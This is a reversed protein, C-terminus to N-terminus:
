GLDQPKALPFSNDGKGSLSASKRLEEIAQSVEGRGFISSTAALRTAGAAVVLPATKPSIGGDVEIPIKSNIKRIAAIKKLASRQFPQGSRGTHITMVLVQDISELYPLIEKVPTPLDIALGIEANLSQCELIFDYVNEKGEGEKSFGELHAIFRDFGAAFFPEVYRVPDKVMLHAEMKLSSDLDAFPEPDHFCSNNFLTGDLVDIQVWSVLNEILRIKQEIASFKQELIGPIIEIQKTAEHSLHKM